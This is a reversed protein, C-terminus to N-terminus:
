NKGRWSTILVIKKQTAEFVKRTRVDNWNLLRNLKWGSVELESARYYGRRILRGRKNFVNDPLDYAYRVMNVGPTTLFYVYGKPHKRVTLFDARLFEFLLEECNNDSHIKRIQEVTLGRFDYISKLVAIDDGRHLYGEAIERTRKM